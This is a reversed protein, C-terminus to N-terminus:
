KWVDSLMEVASEQLDQTVHSYVDMTVTISSHGLREQVVKPSIGKSLLLTAHTHRLDHFTIRRKINAEKLIPQFFRNNFNSPNYLKGVQNAFVLNNDKYFDALFGMQKQQKKKLELLADIVLSDVALVRRSSRTKTDELILGYTRTTSMSRIVRIKNRNFDIDTWKLGFVEGIRMGTSLAVLLITYILWSRKKATELVKKIEIESLPQIEKRQVRPKTTDRVPNHKIYGISRAVDLASILYRRTETVTHASLPKRNFGGTLLLEKFHKQLFPSTLQQLMIDGIPNTIYCRLTSEYKEFTKIKVQGEKYDTLWISIWEKISMKGKSPIFGNEIDKKYQNARELAEKASKGTRKIRKIQNTTPNTVLVRAVYVKQGRPNKKELVSGENNARRKM